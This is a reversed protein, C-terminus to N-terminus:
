LVGSHCIQQYNFIRNSIDYAFVRDLIEINVEIGGMGVELDLSLSSLQQRMKRDLQQMGM